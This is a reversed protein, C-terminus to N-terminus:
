RGMTRFAAQAESVFRRIREQQKGGGEPDEVGSATDVADPLVTLIAARVNEPNLGGALILPQEALMLRHESLAVLDAQEGTGGYSTPSHADILVAALRVGLPRCADLYAGIQHWQDGRPRFARILRLDALEALLEPPEDGHLQVYDLRCQDATRQIEEVSSNVFVGVKVLPAPVAAALEAAAGPPLYRRSQPYCNLGVADGGAVAVAQVDALSRVGCIKIQFMIRPSGEIERRERAGGARLV